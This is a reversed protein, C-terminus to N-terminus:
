IGHVTPGDGPRGEGVYRAWQGGEGVCGDGPGGEEVYDVVTGVVRAGRGGWDRGWGEGPGLYNRGVPKQLGAGGEGGRERNVGERGRDRDVNDAAATDVSCRLAAGDLERRVRMCRKPAILMEPPWGMTEELEDGEVSGEEESGQSDAEISSARGDLNEAYFTQTAGLFGESHMM